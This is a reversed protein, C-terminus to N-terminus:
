KLIAFYMYYITIKLAIKFKFIFTRSNVVKLSRTKNKNDYIKALTKLKLYGIKKCNCIYISGEVIDWSLFCLHSSPILIKNLTYFRINININQPTFDTTKFAAREDNNRRKIKPETLPSYQHM